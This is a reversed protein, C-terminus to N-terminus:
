QTVVEDKLTEDIKKELLQLSKGGIEKAKDSTLVNYTVGAGIIIAMDKKTPLLTALTGSIFSVVLCSILVRRVIKSVKHDYVDDMSIDGDALAATAGFVYIGAVALTIVFLGTSLSSLSEGFKDVMVFLYIPFFEM